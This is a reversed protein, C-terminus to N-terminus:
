ALKRRALGLGALALGLLALSGPEPVNGTVIRIKNGIAAAYENANAVGVYFGQAPFNYPAVTDCPGPYCYSGTLGAVDIGGSIGEISINDVGAAILANRAAVGAAPDGEIGDTAFNVYSASAGGLGVGGSLATQMASFAPGFNTGGGVYVDNPRGDGLNFISTALNTRDAATNVAFNAIDVSASTAFSVVSVEYVDPGGVPILSGVASSLAGVIVNWDSAGISGSRDLIFGLQITGANAPVSAGMALAIGAAAALSKLRTRIM